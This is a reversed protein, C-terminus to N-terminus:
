DLTFTSTSGTQNEPKKLSNATLYILPKLILKNHTKMHAQLTNATLEFEESPHYGPLELQPIYQVGM